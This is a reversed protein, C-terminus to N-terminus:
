RKQSSCLHILSTAVKAWARINDWFGQIESRLQDWYHASSSIVVPTAQMPFFDTVKFFSKKKTIYRKWLAFVVGYEMTVIWQMRQM